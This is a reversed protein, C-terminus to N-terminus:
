RIKLSFCVNHCIISILVKPNCLSRRMNSFCGDCVVTLPAFTELEEGTTSKYKVGKVVGDKEILSLVTGQELHVRCDCSSQNLNAELECQDYLFAIYLFPASHFACQLRIFQRL